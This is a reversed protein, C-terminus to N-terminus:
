ALLGGIRRGTADVRYLVQNHKQWVYSPLVFMTLLSCECFGSLIRGTVKDSKPIGIGVFIFYATSLLWLSFYVMVTDPLLTIATVWVTGVSATFVVSNLIIFCLLKLGSLILNGAQYPKEIAINSANASVITSNAPHNSSSDQWYGGPPTFAAQYTATVILTSVILLIKRVNANQTGFYGAYREFM